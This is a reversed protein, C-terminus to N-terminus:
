HTQSWDYGQQISGKMPCPFKFYEGAKIMSNQLIDKIIGVKEVNDICELQWEDHVNLIFEYDKGPILDVAQLDTDAIYLAKKMILAGASQLVTNLEGHQSRCFLKRGDLGKIYGVTKIKQHINEKLTVLEPIRDGFLELCHKGAVWCEWYMQSREIVEKGKEKLEENKEKVWQMMGAVNKNFDPVYKKFDVGYEFLIKGVKANKGGYVYCYFITKACDRSTLEMAEMNVSHPDTGNEKNGHLLSNMFRGKDLNYLYGALCRMELADADCGIMIRQEPVCFLERCEKGYLSDNAPIQGMNPGFHAMRGTVAGNQRIAGRIRGDEDIKKTWGQKGDTIQSIRKCITLYEQLPKLEKFPLNEIIDENLKVNGKDTFEEPNWDWKKILRDVIQQRSNPNFEELKVKTFSKGGVYGKKKDSRKPTFEGQSVFRPPFIEQLKWKLDVTKATLDTIFQEAKEKNFLVGYAQQRALIPAISNELEIANTNLLKDEVKSLLFTYLSKTTYTDQICYKGMDDNYAEWGGEYDGKYCHIRQGWARLSHSGTDRKSFINGEFQDEENKLDSFLLQALLMTDNIKQEKYPKWGYLKEIVKLDFNFINHGILEVQPNDILKLFEDINSTIGDNIYLRSFSSDVDVISACHIKTVKQLLNDTELDIIYRRM